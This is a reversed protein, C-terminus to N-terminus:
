KKQEQQGQFGGPNVDEQVPQMKGGKTGTFLAKSGAVPKDGPMSGPIAYDMIVDQFKQFCLMIAESNKIEEFTMCGMARVYAEVRGKKFAPLAITALYITLYRKIVDYNAVDKELEIVEAKKAVASAKKESGSKLLGGFTFKGANLKACAENLSFIDANAKAQLNKIHDKYSIAGILSELSMVEGKVWNKIHIFSNKQVSTMASLNEEL